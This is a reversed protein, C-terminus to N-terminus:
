QRYPKKTPWVLVAHRPMENAIQLQSHGNEGSFIGKSTFFIWNNHKFPDMKLKLLDM